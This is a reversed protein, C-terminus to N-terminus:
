IGTHLDANQENNQQNKEEEILPKEDRAKINEIIKTFNKLNHEERRRLNKILMRIIDSTPYSHKLSLTHTKYEKTGQDLYKLEMSMIQSQGLIKITEQLYEIDHILKSTIEFEKKTM